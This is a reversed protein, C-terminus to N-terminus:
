INRTGNWYEWLDDLALKQQNTEVLNAEWAAHGPKTQYVGELIEVASVYTGTRGHGWGCYIHVNEHHYWDKHCNIFDQQTAACGDPVHLWKYGIGKASLRAQEEKSLEVNNASIVHKVGHAALYNVADDDM